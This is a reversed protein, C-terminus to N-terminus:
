FARKAQLVSSVNNEKKEFMSCRYVLITNVQRGKGFVHMLIDIPCPGGCVMERPRDGEPFLGHSNKAGEPSLLNRQCRDDKIQHSVNDHSVKM